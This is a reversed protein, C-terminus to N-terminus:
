ETRSGGTGGWTTISVYSLEYAEIMQGDAFTLLYIM